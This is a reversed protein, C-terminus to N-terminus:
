NPCCVADDRPQLLKFVERYYSGFVSGKRWLFTFDHTIQCDQLRIEQLIGSALEDRVAPYYFFSIGVGAAVLAKITDLSGLESCHSFDRLTLNREELVRMLVERTGSGEERVLLHEGLLQELSYSGQACSHAPACVPLYRETRYPLSDYDQKAFFGEGIAFDIQGQDLMHLLEATNSVMMRLHLEPQQHLLRILPQPMVYEGITLTAGFDLQRRNSLQRIMERLHHDDHRMTTATQLLLQGAETLSLQKGQYVFLKAGYEEELARIHQSVAPQTIHLQQAARTLNMTQCVALFTEIRFNLM